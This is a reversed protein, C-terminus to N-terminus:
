KKKLCFVAYSIAVHSSNLRTSKRDKISGEGEIDLVKPEETFNDSLYTEYLKIIEEIDTETEFSVSVNSQVSNTQHINADDPIPIDSPFDKPLELNQGLTLGEDEDDMGFGKMQFQGEEEDISISHEGGEEDTFTIGDKSIKMKNGDGIPINICGTLFITFIGNIFKGKFIKNRKVGKNLVSM